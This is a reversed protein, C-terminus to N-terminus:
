RRPPGGGPGNPAGRRRNMQARQEPTSNLLRERQMRAMEAPNPMMRQRREEPSMNAIEEMLREREQQERELKERADVPLAQRLDREMAERQKWANERDATSMEDPRFFGAGDGRGAFRPGDGGPGRPGGPGGPMFVPQLAYITTWERGAARALESVAKTVTVAVLNVALTAQAGDEPVVRAQAFRQLATVGFALDKGALNLSIREQVPPVNLPTGPMMAGMMPGPGPGWTRATLNSWGQGGPERHGRLMEKFNELSHPTSYIPYLTGARAFAQEGVRRLVNRLPMRRVRLTIKGQVSKDVLIEEWTQREIKKVVQRVDMNRVNLTVLDHHALWALWGGYIAGALLIAGTALTLKRTATMANPPATGSHRFWEYM